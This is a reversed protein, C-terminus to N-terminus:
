KVIIADREAGVSVYRSPCSVAFDQKRSYTQGSIQQCAIFGMKGAIMRELEQVKEEDGDFLKLFSAATGTTGKCGLPWLQSLAFDLQGRIWRWIRFGSAPVNEWLRPSPQRFTPLPM